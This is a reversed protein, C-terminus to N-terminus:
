VTGRSSRGRLTIEAGHPNGVGLLADRSVPGSAPFNAERRESSCTVCRGAPARLAGRSKRGNVFVSHRQAVLLKVFARAGACARVFRVQSRRARSLPVRMRPSPVGCVRVRGTRNSLRRRPQCASVSAMVPALVARLLFPRSPARSPGRPPPSKVHKVGRQAYRPRVRRRGGRSAGARSMCPCVRSSKRDSAPM